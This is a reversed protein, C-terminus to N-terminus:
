LISSSIAEANSLANNWCCSAGCIGNLFAFLLAIPVIVAIVCWLVVASIARSYQSLMILAALDTSLPTMVTSRFLNHSPSTIWMIGSTLYMPLSVSPNLSILSYIWASLSPTFIGVSNLYSDFWRVRQSRSGLPADLVDNTTCTTLVFIIACLSNFLPTVVTPRRYLTSNNMLVSGSLREPSLQLYPWMSVLHQWWWGSDPLQAPCCQDSSCLHLRTLYEDLCPADHLWMCSVHGFQLPFWVTNPSFHTFIELGYSHRLLAPSQFQISSLCSPYRHSGSCCKAGPMRAIYAVPYLCWHGVLLCSNDTYHLNHLHCIHDYSLGSSLGFNSGGSGIILAIWCCQALNFLHVVIASSIPTTQLACMTDKWSGGLSLIGNSIQCESDSIHFVLLTQIAPYLPLLRATSSRVSRLLCPLLWTM